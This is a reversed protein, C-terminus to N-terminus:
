QETYASAWGLRLLKVWAWALAAAQQLLPAAWGARGALANYAGWISLHLLAGLAALALVGLPRRAILRAARGLAALPSARDAAVAAARGYEGWINVLELLALATLTAAGFGAAAGVLGAALLALIALLVLLAGLGVFGWFHRRCGAWFGRGAWVSLIGGSFLNYAGGFALAAALAGVVWLLAVPALAEGDAIALLTLADWDGAALGELLPGSGAALAAPWAQLLGLALGSLYLPLVLRLRAANTLGGRLAALFSQMTTM